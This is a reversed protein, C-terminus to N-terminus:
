GQKENTTDKKDEVKSDDSNKQPSDSNRNDRKEKDFNFNRDSPRVRSNDSPRTMTGRNFDNGMSMRGQNCPRALLFIAATIAAGILIGIVFSILQKKTTDKNAEKVEKIEKVEDKKM